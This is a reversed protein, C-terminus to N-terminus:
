CNGNRFSNGHRSHYLLIAGLPNSISSSAANSKKAQTGDPKLVPNIGLQWGINAVVAQSDRVPVSIRGQSDSKVIKVTNDAVSSDGTVDNFKMGNWTM